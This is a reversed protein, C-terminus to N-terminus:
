GTPELLVVPIERKTKRQYGGYHAHDAVIRSWLREREEATAVRANMPRAPEGKWSVRVEPNDRLNLFWAPNHEGGGRSGVIVITAGEQLPSSLMVTHPQGTKRGTTTLELMPMGGGKWGLRGGTLKLTTKHFANLVKFATDSPM